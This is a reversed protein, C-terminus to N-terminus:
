SARTEWCRWLAHRAPYSCNPHPYGCSRKGVAMVARRFGNCTCLRKYVEDTFEIKDAISVVDKKGATIIKVMSVASSAGADHCLEHARKVIISARGSRRGHHNRCTRRLLVGSEEIMQIVDDNFMRNRDRCPMNHESMRPM